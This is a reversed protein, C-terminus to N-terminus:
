RHNGPSKSCGEDIILKRRIRKDIKSPCSTRPLTVTTGWKSIIAEVSHLPVDLTKFEKTGM